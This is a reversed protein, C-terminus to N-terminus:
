WPRPLGFLQEALDITEDDFPARWSPQDLYERYRQDVTMEQARDTFRDRDFSSGQGRTPVHQWPEGGRLHRFAFREALEQRYDTDSFWRNYSLWPYGDRCLRAYPKWKELDLPHRWNVARTAVGRTLSALWNYPDRLQIWCTAELQRCRELADRVRDEPQAELTVLRAEPLDPELDELRGAVRSDCPEGRGAVYWEAVAYLGSRPLGLQCTLRPM